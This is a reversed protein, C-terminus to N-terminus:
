LKLVEVEHEHKIADIFVFWDRSEENKSERM